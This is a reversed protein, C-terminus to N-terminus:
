SGGRSVAAAPTRFVAADRYFDADENASCWGPLGLVPLPAFPKLALKDASVDHAQPRM